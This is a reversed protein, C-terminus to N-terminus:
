WPFSSPTSCETELFKDQIVKISGYPGKREPKDEVEAGEHILPEEAKYVSISSIHILHQVDKQECFTVLSDLYAENDQQSGDSLLIYNIVTDFQDTFHPNDHLQDVPGTIVDGDSQVQGRSFCVVEHGASELTQKLGKAAFSRHGCVLIRKGMMM